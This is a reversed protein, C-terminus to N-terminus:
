LRGAFWIAGTLATGLSLAPMFRRPYMPWRSLLWLLPLTLGVIMLQALEVGLNFGALMPALRSGDTAIQQLANAFGFGHVLGFGFALRLRWRSAAPFLNLLGALVISGAIAVEVAQAPIRVADAAALGLTLSHAITFATVIKLLDLMVAHGSEAATWGSRSGNLVSPLLLLLLFAVHDYGILVHWIGQRLFRQLADLASSADPETWSASGMSLATEFSGNPTRLEVLTSYGLSGFFLGSTVEVPGDERCKGALELSVFEQLERLRSNIAGASLRCDDDGRRIGLRSIAFQAIAAHRAGIERASLQGDGDADVELPLQLDVVAIDWHGVLDPSRGSSELRLYSAGSAHAQAAGAAFMSAFIALSAIGARTGRRWSAAGNM